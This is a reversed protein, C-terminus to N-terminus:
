MLPMENDVEEVSYGDDYLINVARDIDMDRYRKMEDHAGIIINDDVLLNSTFTGRKVRIIRSKSM